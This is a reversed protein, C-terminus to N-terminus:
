TEFDESYYLIGNVVTCDQEDIVQKILKQRIQDYGRSVFDGSENYNFFAGLRAM